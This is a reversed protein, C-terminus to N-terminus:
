WKGEDGSGVGRRCWRGEDGSALIVVGGEDGSGKTVM